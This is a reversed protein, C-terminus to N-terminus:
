LLTVNSFDSRHVIKEGYSCNSVLQEKGAHDAIRITDIAWEATGKGSNKAQYWRLATASTRAADPLNILICQPTSHDTFCASICIRVAFYLLSVCCSRRHLALYITLENIHFSSVCVCVCVRVCARVCAYVIWMIIVVFASYFSFTRKGYYTLIRLDTFSSAGDPSYQVVVDQGTSAVGCGDGGIRVYFSM